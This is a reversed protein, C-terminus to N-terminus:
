EENTHYAGDDNSAEGKGGNETEGSGPINTTTRENYENFEREIAECFVKYAAESCPIRIKRNDNNM